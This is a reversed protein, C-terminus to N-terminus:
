TIASATDITIPVNTGDYKLPMMLEIEAPTDGSQAFPTDIYALGAATFKIHEATGDPVFTSGEQYRKLYLITNAHTGSAGLIGIGGSDKFWHLDNGRLTITPEVAVIRSRTDWTDSDGGQTEAAVGFDISLRIAQGTTIGAITFKGLTFREDDVLGAPLSQNEALVVPNNTGDYVALVQYSLVADQQHDVTLTRPIMLGKRITYKKHSSAGAPTSGDTWAQAFLELGANLTSLINTGLLGCADLARAIQLTSFTAGPKQSVIAQHEPYIQGSTRDRRVETGLEVNQDTIGGILTDSGGDPYHRVAWRSHDGM